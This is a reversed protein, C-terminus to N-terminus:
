NTQPSESSIQPYRLDCHYFDCHHCITPSGEVGFPPQHLSILLPPTNPFLLFCRIVEQEMGWHLKVKLNYFCIWSTSTQCLINLITAGSLQAFCKLTKNQKVQNKNRAQPNAKCLTPLTVKSSLIHLVTKEVCKNEEKLFVNGHHM